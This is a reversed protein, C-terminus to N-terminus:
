VGYKGRTANYNQSVETATLARNYVRAEGIFGDFYGSIRPGCYGLQFDGITQGSVIELSSSSTGDSGEQVANRYGIAGVQGDRTLVIHTWTNYQFISSYFNSANRAGFNIRPQGQDSGVQIGVGYDSTHGIIGDSNTTSGSSSRVYIWVELTYESDAAGAAIYESTGGGATLNSSLQIFDNSGDFEFYGAPNFTAGDITGTPSSGALSRITGSPSGTLPYLYVRGSSDPSGSGAGIALTGGSAAMSSGFASNDGSFGSGIWRDLEMGAHTFLYSRGM